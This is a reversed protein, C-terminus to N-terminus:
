KQVLEDMMTLFHDIEAETTYLHASVRLGCGPRHDVYIRREVLQHLIHAANPVDIGVWGTRRDADHPTNVRWGRELAAETLRTTLRVNHARIAPVGVERIIDHGPRAVLYGPITPTGTAWRLQDDAYDIPPPEFAFPDRHAFWGTVMPRFQQALAPRVYIWGCGPGGCLWKHSGGVAVDLDLDVVDYPYTGTTQYADLVVLAGVERARAVIPPVDILIGSQYYAHSLVVVATRESIASCIRDTPITRNDGSPVRVTTAGAREWATWVYALSPFQLAEYVIENKGGSRQFDLSSALASQLVSVNPALAVSGIPAGIIAGIGDGIARAQDLWAPWAGEPGGEAWQAHYRTLADRAALPPAGMSHSVLWTNADIGAFRGRVDQPLTV